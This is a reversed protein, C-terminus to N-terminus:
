LCDWLGAIEGADLEPWRQVYHDGHREEVRTTCLETATIHSCTWRALCACTWGTDPCFRVAWTATDGEVAATIHDRDLYRVHVAGAALLRSAKATISVSM